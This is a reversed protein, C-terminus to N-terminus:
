KTLLMQRLVMKCSCYLESIHLWRVRLVFACKKRELLNTFANSFANKFRM